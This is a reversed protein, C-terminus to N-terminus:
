PLYERIMESYSGEGDWQQAFLDIRAKELTEEFGGVDEILGLKYAARPTYGPFFNRWTFPIRGPTVKNVLGVISTNCTTTLSNYFEPSKGLQNLRHALSFLMKKDKGPPTIARFMYDVNKRGNTRLGMIDSELGVLLYLEYNRWLGDWPHYRQGVVRRTEFSFSLCIGDTFEITVFTHALGTISHFHDVVFWIDKIEESDVTIEDVWNEDYDKTTRWFFDRVNKFTIKTGDIIAEGHFKCDPRWDAEIKPKRLRIIFMWVYIMRLIILAAILGLFYIGFQIPEELIKEILAEGGIGSECNRTGGIWPEMQM